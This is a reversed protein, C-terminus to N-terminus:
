GIVRLQKKLNPGILDRIQSGVDGPQPLSELFSVSILETIESDNESYAEELRNLIERLEHKQLPEGVSRTDPLLSLAYRTLDGFFVHPLIEGGNDKSHEELLVRLGSSCGALSEVVQISRKNM